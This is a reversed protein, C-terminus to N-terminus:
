EAGAGPGGSVVKGTAKDITVPEPPIPLARKGDKARPAAVEVFWVKDDDSSSITAIDGKIGAAELYGKITAEEAPTAKKLPATKM